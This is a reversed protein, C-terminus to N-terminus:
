CFILTFNQVFFPFNAWIEGWVIIFIYFFRLFVQKRDFFIGIQIYNDSYFFIFFLMPASGEKELLWYDYPSLFANSLKNLLRRM